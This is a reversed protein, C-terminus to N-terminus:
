CNPGVCIALAPAAEVTLVAAGGGSLALALLILSIVRRM